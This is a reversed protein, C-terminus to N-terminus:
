QHLFTDILEITTQIRSKLPDSMPTETCITLPVGLHFLLDEFTGDHTNLVLGNNIAINKYSGKELVGHRTAGVSIMEHVVSPVPEQSTCYLYFNSNTPDEHLTLFGDISLIRLTDLNDQLAQSEMCLEHTEHVWGSNPSQKLYNYRSDLLYGTPNVMPLYSTNPHPDHTELYEILGLPGAIENGHFGAAILYRPERPLFFKPTLLYIPYHTTYVYDLINLQYNLSRVRKYFDKLSNM